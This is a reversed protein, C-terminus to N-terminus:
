ARAVEGQTRSHNTYMCTIRDAHLVELDDILWFLLYIFWPENSLHFLILLVWCGSWCQFAPVFSIWCNFGPSMWLFLLENRIIGVKDDFAEKISMIACNLIMTKLNKSMSNLVKDGALWIARSLNLSSSSSNFHNNYSQLFAQRRIIFTHFM